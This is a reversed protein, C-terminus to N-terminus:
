FIARRFRCKARWAFLIGIAGYILMFCLMVSTTSFVDSFNAVPWDYDLATLGGAAHWIGGAGEMLVVAQIVPNASVYLESLDDDHIGSIVLTLGLLMPVIVWLMLGLGFNMVVAATTRKFCSSFYLGTGTFFFVIWAVLMAMHVIAIPHIFGVITFVIVHGALFLWIPSCKRFIGFAKGVLIHWDSLPTALLIPWTRAEKESTIATASLVATCLTGLIVFIVAYVAHTESSGLCDEKICVAYTTGTAFIAASIGIIAAVKGGRLLPTRLEKWIIPSGKVRRIRGATSVEASSGEREARKHARRQRRRVFVGAEGTAQRLAVKRVAKVTLSLIVASAGLMIGCHLPWSFFPMGSSARPAMMVTSNLALSAFPNPQIIWPLLTTDLYFDNVLMVLLWPLFAFLVGGVFLTKLIVAYARRSRISFYMSVSAAFIAATLTICASSIVFEWPVGGFVRVIALLPISIALLILLQWLKSLLKGMVIQFSNIPTSMLIGLTKHYIEDSIANSLMVVAVLQIACFQFWVISAIIVKGAESMRSIRYAASTYSSIRMMSLWALVVFLTLLCLYVFRLVYTRKRRSSVRLEKDFIPGTLWSPKILRSVLNLSAAFM